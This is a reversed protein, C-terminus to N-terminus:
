NQCIPAIYEGNIISWHAQDLYFEMTMPATRIAFLLSDGVKAIFNYGYENEYTQLIEPVPMVSTSINCNNYRVSASLETTQAHTRLALLALASIILLACTKRWTSLKKLHRREGGLTRRSSYKYFSPYKTM